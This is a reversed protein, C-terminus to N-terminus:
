GTRGSPASASRAATSSLGRFVTEAPVTDPLIYVVGGRSAFAPLAVRSFFAPPVNICGYSIRHRAPDSSALRELRQEARTGPIVAHMSVAAAYDIWVVPAGDANHGPMTIFRGAPTTKEEPRIAAIPKDGIGPVSTDGQAAGLLVWSSDLWAGDSSFVHVHADRKDVIAFPRGGQDGSAVIWEALRRSEPSLHAAGFVPSPVPTQATAADMRADTEAPEGGCGAIALMSM